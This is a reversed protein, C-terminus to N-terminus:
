TFHSPFNSAIPRLRQFAEFSGDIANDQKARLLVPRAIPSPGSKYSGAFANRVPSLVDHPYIDAKRREADYRARQEPDALVEHV